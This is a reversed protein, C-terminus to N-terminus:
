GLWGCGFGVLWGWIWVLGVWGDWVLWGLGFLGLIVGFWGVWVLWGWVLRLDQPSSLELARDVLAVDSPDPDIEPNRFLRKNESGPRKSEPTIRDEPGPGQPEFKFESFIWLAIGSPLLWPLWKKSRSSQNGPGGGVDALTSGCQYCHLAEVDNFSDCSRCQPRM